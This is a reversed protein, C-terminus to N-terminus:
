KDKKDGRPDHIEHGKGCIHFGEGPKTHKDVQTRTNDVAQPPVIEIVVGKNLLLLPLLTEM